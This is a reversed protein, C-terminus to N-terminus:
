LNSKFEKAKKLYWQEKKIDQEISNNPKTGMRMRYKFATMICFQATAEPGWIRAMMDIAEIDYNNYHSPHNVMEYNDNNNDEISINNNNNNNITDENSIVNDKVPNEIITINPKINNNNIVNKYNNNSDKIIVKTPEKTYAFTDGPKEIKESIDTVLIGIEEYPINNNNKIWDHIIQEVDTTKFTKKPM